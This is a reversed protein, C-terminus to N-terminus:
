YKDTLTHNTTEQTSALQRAYSLLSMISADDIAARHLLLEYLPRYVNFDRVCLIPHGQIANYFNVNVHPMEYVVTQGIM